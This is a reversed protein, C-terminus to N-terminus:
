VQKHRLSEVFPISGVWTSLVKILAVCIGKGGACELTSDVRIRWLPRVTIIEEPQVCAINLETIQYTQNCSGHDELRHSLRQNYVRVAQLVLERLLFSIGSLLLPM